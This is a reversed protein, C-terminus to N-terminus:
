KSIYKFSAFLKRKKLYDVNDGNAKSEKEFSLAKYAGGGPVIVQIIWELLYLAYYTLYGFILISWISGIGFLLNVLTLLIIATIFIELQQRIHIAEHRNIIEDNRIEKNKFIIFPLITIAKFRKFFINLTLKIM